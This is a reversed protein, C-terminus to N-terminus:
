AYWSSKDVGELLVMSKNYWISDAGWFNIPVGSFIRSYIIGKTAGPFKSGCETEVYLQWPLGISNELFVIEISVAL